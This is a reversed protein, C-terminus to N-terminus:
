RLGERLLMVGGGIGETEDGLFEALISLRPAYPELIAAAEKLSKMANEIKTIALDVDNLTKAPVKVVHGSTM